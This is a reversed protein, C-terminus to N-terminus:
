QEEAFRLRGDYERLLEEIESYVDAKTQLKAAAGPMITLVMGPNDPLM